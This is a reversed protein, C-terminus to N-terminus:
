VKRLEEGGKKWEEEGANKWGKKRGM